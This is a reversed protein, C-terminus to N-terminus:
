ALRRATHESMIWSLATPFYCRSKYGPRALRINSCSHIQVKYRKTLRQSSEGVNALIAPIAGLCSIALYLPYLNRNHRLIIACVDGRKIDRETLAEAMAEAKSLLASFTWRFPDEGAVWHIIADRDGHQEANEVWRKWLIYNEKELKVM